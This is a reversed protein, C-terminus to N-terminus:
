PHLVKDKIRHGEYLKFPEQCSKPSEMAKENRFKPAMLVQRLQTRPAYRYKNRFDRTAKGISQFNTCRRSHFRRQWLTRFARRTNAISTGQGGLQGLGLGQSADIGPGAWRARQSYRYRYLTTSLQGVHDWVLGNCGGLLMAM